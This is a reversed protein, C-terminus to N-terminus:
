PRPATLPILYDGGRDPAVAAIIRAGNKMMVPRDGVRIEVSRASRPLEIEFNGASASNGIFLRDEASAFTAAGRAARAVVRLSDTVSVRLTGAVQATAFQIVLSPGPEVAIGAREVQVGRSGDPSSPGTPAAQPSIQRNTLTRVWDRLPSGPAAYAAGAVALAVVIGAVRRVWPSPQGRARSMISAASVAPPSHDVASLVSMLDDQSRQAWRVRNACPMCTELHARVAAVEDPALEDDMYRHLRELDVHM